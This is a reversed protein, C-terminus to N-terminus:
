AFRDGLEVGRSHVRDASCECSRGAASSGGARRRLAERAAHMRTPSLLRRFSGAKAPARIVSVRITSSRLPRAGLSGTPSPYAARVFSRRIWSRRNTRASAPIGSNGVRHPSCCDAPWLLVLTRSNVDSVRLVTANKAAKARVRDGRTGRSPRDRDPHLRGLFVTRRNSSMM